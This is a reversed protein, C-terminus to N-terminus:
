QPNLILGLFFLNKHTYRCENHQKCISEVCVIIDIRGNNIYNPAHNGDTQYSFIILLAYRIQKGM